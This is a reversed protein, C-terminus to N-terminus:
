TIGLYMFSSWSCPDPRPLPQSTEVCAQRELCRGVARKRRARCCGVPWAMGRAASTGSELASADVLMPGHGLREQRLTTAENQSSNPWLAAPHLGPPRASSGSLLRLNSSFPFALLGALPPSLRAKHPSRARRCRSPDM